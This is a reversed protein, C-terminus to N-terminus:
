KLLHNFCKQSFSSHRNLNNISCIISVNRVLRPHRNLHNIVCIISVNRVLRPIDTWIIVHLQAISRRLFFMTSPFLKGLLLIDTIIRTMCMFIFSFYIYKQPLNMELRGVTWYNSASSFSSLYIITKSRGTLRSSPSPFNTSTDSSSFM